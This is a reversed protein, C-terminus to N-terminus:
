AQPPAEDTMRKKPGPKRIIIVRIRELIDATKAHRDVFQSWLPYAQRNNSHTGILVVIPVDQPMGFAVAAGTAMSDDVIVAVDPTTEHNVPDVVYGRTELVMKWTSKLNENMCHLLITKKVM